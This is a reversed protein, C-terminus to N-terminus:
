VITPTFEHRCGWHLKNFPLNSFETGPILGNKEAMSHLKQWDKPRLIGNLKNIGYVCQPSSTAILSGSMLLANFKFVEMLKKNVMGTYASVGMQAISDIYRMANGTVTDRLENKLDTLSVESAVARYIANRLPQTFWKQMGSDEFERVVEDFIVQRETGLQVDGPDVGSQFDFIVKDIGQMGKVYRTVMGNFFDTQIVSDNFATSFRNLYRKNGRNLVVRGKQVEINRDVWDFLKDLVLNKFKPEDGLIGEIISMRLGVLEQLYQEYDM